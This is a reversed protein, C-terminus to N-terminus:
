NDWASQILEISLALLAVGIGALLQFPNRPFPEYDRWDCDDTFRAVWDRPDRRM